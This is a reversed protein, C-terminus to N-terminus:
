SVKLFFIFSCFVILPLSLSHSLSHSLSLAFSLSLPPIFSPLSVPFFFLFKSVFDTFTKKLGVLDVFSSAVPTLHWRNYFRVTQTICFSTKMVLSETSLHMQYIYHKSDHFALLLQLWNVCSDSYHLVLNYKTLM